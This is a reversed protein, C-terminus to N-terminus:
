DSCDLGTVARGLGTVVCDLFTVSEDEERSGSSWNWAFKAFADM